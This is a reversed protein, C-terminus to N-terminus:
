NDVMYLLDKKELHCIDVGLRDMPGLILMEEPIQPPPQHTKSSATETCAPCQRVYQKIENKIAPWVWIGRVTRWM